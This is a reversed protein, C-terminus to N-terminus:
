GDQFIKLFKNVLENRSVLSSKNVIVRSTIPLLM